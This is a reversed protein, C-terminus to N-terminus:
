AEADEVGALQGSAEAPPGEWGVKGDVIQAARGCFAAVRDLQHTSVLMTVGEARLERLVQDILLAGAPDLQAYPEDLLILEPDKLLLRAFALRKRMGASFGRVADDARAGLGVEALVAPIHAVRAPDSLMAGLRLNEAASLDDYHHDAHSLMGIRARAAPAPGGFLRLTGLSPRIATGLLRILTTKGAGNAGFLMCTRGVPVELDVSRLAWAGGMRRGVGKASVAAAAPSASSATSSPSPTPM